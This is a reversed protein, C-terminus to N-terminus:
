YIRFRGHYFEDFHWQFGLVVIYPFYSIYPPFQFGTSHFHYLNPERWIGSERAVFSNLLFGYFLLYQFLGLVVLLYLTGNSLKIFVIFSFIKSIQWILCIWFSLIPHQIKEYLSILIDEGKLKRLNCHEDFIPWFLEPSPMNFCYLLYIVVKGFM